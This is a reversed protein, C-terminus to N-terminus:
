GDLSFNKEVLDKAKLYKENSHWRNNEYVISILGLFGLVAGIWGFSFAVVPLDILSM